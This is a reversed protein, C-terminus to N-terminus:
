GTETSASLTTKGSFAGFKSATAVNHRWFNHSFSFGYLELCIKRAYNKLWLLSAFTIESLMLNNEPSKICQKVCAPSAHANDSIKVRCGLVKSKIFCPSLKKFPKFFSRDKYHEKQSHLYIIRDPNPSDVWKPFTM